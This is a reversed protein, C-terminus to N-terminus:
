WGDNLGRRPGWEHSNGLQFYVTFSMFGHVKLQPAQSMDKYAM